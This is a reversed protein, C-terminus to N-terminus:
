FIWGAQFYLDFFTVSAAEAPYKNFIPRLEDTWPADIFM